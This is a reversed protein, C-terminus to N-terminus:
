FYLDRKGKKLTELKELTKGKIKSSSIKELEKKILDDGKKRLEEDGYDLLYEKFTLICNPLCFDKIEGPKAMHMFDEGTRGTRYCATCFSPFFGKEIIDKAIM